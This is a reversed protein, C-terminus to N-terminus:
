DQKTAEEFGALYLGHERIGHLSPPKFHGRDSMGDAWGQDYYQQDFFVDPNRPTDKAM